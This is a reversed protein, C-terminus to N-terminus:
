HNSNDARSGWSSGIERANWPSRTRCSKPYSKLAWRPPRSPTHSSDKPQDFNDNNSTLHEIDTKFPSIIQGEWNSRRWSSFNTFQNTSKQHRNRLWRTSIGQVLVTCSLTQSQSILSTNNSRHSHNLTDEWKQLITKNEIRTTLIFCTNFSVDLFSRKLLRGLLLWSGLAVWNM